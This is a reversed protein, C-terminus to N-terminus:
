YSSGLYFRDIRLDPRRENSSHFGTFQGVKSKPFDLPQVHKTTGMNARASTSFTTREREENLAGRNKGEKKKETNTGKTIVFSSKNQDYVLLLTSNM